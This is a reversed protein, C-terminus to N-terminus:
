EGTKRTYTGNWFLLDIISVPVQGLTTAPKYAYSRLGSIILKDESLNGSFSITTPPDLYTLFKITEGDYELGPFSRNIIHHTNNNGLQYNRFIIISRSLNFVMAPSRPNSPNKVWTGEITKNVGSTTNDIGNTTNGTTANDDTGDTTKENVINDIGNNLDNITDKECGNFFFGCAFLCITFIGIKKM